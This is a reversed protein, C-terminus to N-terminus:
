VAQTKVQHRRHPLGTVTAGSYAPRVVPGLEFLDLDLLERTDGTWKDKRVAFAFSCGTVDGRQVAEKVDAASEPLDVSFRLGTSDTWVKATGSATRGLLRNPDHNFCVLVDPSQALFRDFAGRKIIETFSRGGESIRTPSDYIAGLGSLTRGETTYGTALSRTERTSM